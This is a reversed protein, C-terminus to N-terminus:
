EGRKMLLLVALIIVVGRIVMQFYSSFGLLLLGNNLVGIILSGIITGIISGKGGFLSTGGLIVAAIVNLEMGIGVHPRSTHMQSSLIIGSLAALVGTITFVAIIVKDTNIGSFRAAEINGGTAYVRRGFVAKRLFFGTIIAVILTWIIQSPVHFLEGDGFIRWYPERYIVVDKTQTIMMTFGRAIGMTALTTLFAPIRGKTTLFGNTFGVAAGLVLGAIVGLFTNGTVKITLGAVMGALSLVAGVSLDIQAAIIVLTMGCAIISVQATQRGINALNNISFFFPSTFGFLLVLVVLVVLILQQKFFDSIKQLLTAKIDGNIAQAGNLDKGM